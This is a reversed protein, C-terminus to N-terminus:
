RRAGAPSLRARGMEAVNRRAPALLRRMDRHISSHPWDFPDDALGHRLPDHWCYRIADDRAAETRLHHEWFRPQWIGLEGKRRLAPNVGGDARGVPPPPTFGARRVARSFRAKIAGVRVSYDADGEPLTWVAHLHDPLTVWADIHFPREAKTRAVAQRLADVERVLWDGRRDALCITLFITAGPVRPRVYNPM